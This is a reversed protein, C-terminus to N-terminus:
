FLVGSCGDRSLEPCPRGELVPSHAMVKTWDRHGPSQCTEPDSEDSGSYNRSLGPCSPASLRLSLRVGPFHRWSSEMTSFGDAKGPGPDTNPRRERRPGSHARILTPPEGGTTTPCGRPVEQWSTGERPMRCGRMHTQVSSHSTM